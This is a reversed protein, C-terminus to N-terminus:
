STSIDRSDSVARRWMSPDGHGSGLRPHPNTRKPMNRPARYCVPFPELLRPVMAAYQGPILTAQPSPPNAMIKWSRGSIASCKDDILPTWKRATIEALSAAIKTYKLRDSLPISMTGSITSGYGRKTDPCIAAHTPLLNVAIGGHDDPYGPANTLM